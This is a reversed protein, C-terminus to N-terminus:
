EAMEVNQDTASNALVPEAATGTAPATDSATETPQNGANRRRLAPRGFRPLRLRRTPSVLQASALTLALGLLVFAAASKPWFTDRPFGLSLRSSSCMPATDVCRANVSLRAKAREPLRAGADEVVVAPEAASASTM